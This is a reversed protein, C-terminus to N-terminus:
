RDFREVLTAPQLNLPANTKLSHTDGVEETGLLMDFGSAIYVVESWWLPRFQARVEVRTRGPQLKSSVTM